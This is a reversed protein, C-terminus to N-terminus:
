RFQPIAGPPVGFGRLQRQIDRIERSYKLQEAEKSSYDGGGVGRIMRSYATREVDMLRRAAAIPETYRPFVEGQAPPTTLGSGLISQLQQRAALSIGLGWTPTTTPTAARSPTTTTTPSMGTSSVFTRAGPYVKLQPFIHFFALQHFLRNM